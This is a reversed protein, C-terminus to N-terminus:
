NLNLRRKLRENEAKLEANEKRLVDIELQQTFRQQDSTGTNNTIPTTWYIKAERFFANRIKCASERHNGAQDRFKVKYTATNEDFDFWVRSVSIIEGDQAAVAKRIKELNRENRLLTIM